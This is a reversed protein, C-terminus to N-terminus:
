LLGKEMKTILTKANKIGIKKIFGELTNCGKHALGIAENTDHNHHVVIDSMVLNEISNNCMVCKGKQNNYMNNWDNLTMSIGNIKYKKLSAEKRSIAYKAYYCENHYRYTYKGNNTEIYHKNDTTQEITGKCIQCIM